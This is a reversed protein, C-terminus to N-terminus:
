FVTLSMALLCLWSFLLQQSIWKKLDSLGLHNVNSFYMNSRSVLNVLNKKKIWSV